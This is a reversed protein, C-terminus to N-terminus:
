WVYWKFLGNEFCKEFRVFHLHFYFLFLFVWFHIIFDQHIYNKKIKSLENVRTNCEFQFVCLDLGFLFLFFFLILLRSLSFYKQKSSNIFKESHSFPRSFSGNMNQRCFSAYLTWKIKKALAHTEFKHSIHVWKICM